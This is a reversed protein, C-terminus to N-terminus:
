ILLLMLPITVVSLMTSLLVVNAAYEQGEGLMEAFSLVMNGVPVCSLIYIGRVFDDELPLLRCVCLVLLPYVFLKVAVAAYQLPDTFIPLLKKAGLRMGLILMCLPTCFKNMAYVFDYPIGSLRIGTFYFVLSIMM